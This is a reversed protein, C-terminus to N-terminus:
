DPTELMRAELAAAKQIEVQPKHHSKLAKVFMKLVNDIDYCLGSACNEFTSLTQM